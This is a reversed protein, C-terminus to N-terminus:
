AVQRDRRGECAAGILGKARRALSSTAFASGRERYPKIM